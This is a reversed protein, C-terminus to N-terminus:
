YERNLWRQRLFDSAASTQGVIVDTEVKWVYRARIADKDKDQGFRSSWRDETIKGNEIVRCHEHGCHACACVHNGNISYDLLAVFGKGCDHCHMDTRIEGVNKLPDGQVETM